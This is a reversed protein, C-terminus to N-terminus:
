FSCILLRLSRGRRGDPWWLQVAGALRSEMVCSIRLHTSNQVPLYLKTAPPCHCELTPLPHSWKHQQDVSSIAINPQRSDISSCSALKKGDNSWCVESIPSSCSIPQFSQLEHNRQHDWLTVTSGSSIALMIDLRQVALRFSCSSTLSRNKIRRLVDCAVVKIKLFLKRKFVM